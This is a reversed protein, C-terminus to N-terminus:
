SLHSWTRGTAIAWIAPYKVGYETALAKRSEGAAYRLRIQVVDNTSLKSNLYRGALRRTKWARGGTGARSIPFMILYRMTDQCNVRKVVVYPLIGRLFRRLSHFASICLYHMPRKGMGTAKRSYVYADVGEAALFDRARSLVDLGERGSQAVTVRFSGIRGGRTQSCGLSGEGDFFGALYAWTV